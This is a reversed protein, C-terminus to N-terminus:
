GTTPLLVRFTTGHGETSDVEVKGGFVQALHKVIALGLGTGGLDRSRAKDVRHFREFIRPLHVAPIGIGTDAVEIVAMGNEQRWRVRVRGGAPTYKLANDLLNDLITRLGDADAQLRVPRAPPEVLLAVGKTRAVAQHEEACPEIVKEAALRKIDFVDTGAEIRALRLM